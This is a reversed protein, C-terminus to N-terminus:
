AKRPWCVSVEECVEHMLFGNKSTVSFPQLRDLDQLYQRTAIGRRSLIVQDSNAAMDVLSHFDMEDSMPSVNMLLFLESLSAKADAYICDVTSPVEKLLFSPTQPIHGLTWRNFLPLTLVRADSEWQSTPKGHAEDLFKQLLTEDDFEETPPKQHRFVLSHLFTLDTLSM